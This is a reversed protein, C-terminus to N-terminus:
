ATDPKPLCFWFRSGGEKRPSYGITGGWREVTIRCSYLGLGAKGSNTKGKSFKKFLHNNLEPSVGAGEDDVSILIKDQKDQLGIKVTSREPSYRLSNELLNIIIRELRNKEGVVKWDKTIEISPELQLKIHKILFTPLLTNRVEKLCDLADPALEPIQHFTELSEVETSFVELMERILREQRDCQLKCVEILNRNKEVVCNRELLDLSTFIVTLPNSLDHIICHILIEKKQIEKFLEQYNLSNERGKQILRQKEQYAAGLQELLLIKRNELKVATAELCYEIGSLDAECWPGSKLTQAHNETWFEEADVLFNELFTSHSDPKLGEGLSAAEGYFQLFWPPLTGIVTFSGDEIREMVAFDLTAFLKSILFENTM